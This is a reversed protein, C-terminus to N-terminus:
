KRLALAADALPGTLGRETASLASLIPLLFENRHKKKAAARASKYHKVLLELEPDVLEGPLAILSQSFAHMVEAPISADPDMKEVITALVVHILKLKKSCLALLPWTKNWAGSQVGEEFVKLALSELAEGCVFDLMSVTGKVTEVTKSSKEYPWQWALVSGVPRYVKALLLKLADTRATGDANSGHVVLRELCNFSIGPRSTVLSALTMLATRRTSPDSSGAQQDVFDVVCLPVIPIAAVIAKLDHVSPVCSVLIEGLKETSLDDGGIEAKYTQMFVSKITEIKSMNARFFSQMLRTKSGKDSGGLGSMIKPLLDPRSTSILSALEDLNVSESSRGKFAKEISAERSLGETQDMEEDSLDGSSAPAVDFFDSVSLDMARAAKVRTDFGMSSGLFAGSLAAKNVRVLAGMPDEVEKPLKALLGLAFKALDAPTEARVSFAAEAHNEDPVKLLDATETIAMLHDGLEELSTIRRRKSVDLGLETDAQEKLREVEASMVLNSDVLGLKELMPIIRPQWVVCHRSALIRKLESVLAARVKPHNSDSKIEEALQSFAVTAAAAYSPRQHGVSGIARVLAVAEMEPASEERKKVLLACLATFLRDAQGKLKSEELVTSSSELLKVDELCSAGAAELQAQSRAAFTSYSQSLIVTQACRIAECFTEKSSSTILHVIRALLHDLAEVSERAAEVYMAERQQISIWYLARKYVVRSARLAFLQVMKDADQLLTILVELCSCAYRSRTFCLMEIFHACFRRFPAERNIHLSLYTELFEDVRENSM